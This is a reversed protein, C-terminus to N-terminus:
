AVRSGIRLSTGPLRSDPPYLRSVSKPKPDTDAGRRQHIWKGAQRRVKGCEALRQTVMVAKVDSRTLQVVSSTGQADDLNGARAGNPVGEPRNEAARQILDRDEVLGEGREKKWSRYANALVLQERGPALGSGAGAPALGVSPPRM